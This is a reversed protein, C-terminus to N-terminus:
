CTRCLKRKVDARLEGERIGLVILSTQWMGNLTSVDKPKGLPGERKLEAKKDCGKWKCKNKTSKASDHNLNGCDRKGKADGDSCVVYRTKYHGCSYVTDYKKCM